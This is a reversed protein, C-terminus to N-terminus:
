CRRRPARRPGARRRPWRRLGCGEHRRGRGVAGSGSIAVRPTPPDRSPWPGAVPGCRASGSSRECRTSRATANRVRRPADDSTSCSSATARSSPSRSAFDPPAGGLAARGPDDARSLCAARDGEGFGRVGGRDDGAPRPAPDGGGRAGRARRAGGPFQRDPGGARDSSIRLSARAGRRFRGRVRGSGPRHWRARGGDGGGSPPRGGHRTDARRGDAGALLLRGRRCPPPSSHRRVPHHDHSRRARTSKLRAQTRSSGGDRRWFEGSVHSLRDSWAHHLLVEASRGVAQSSALHADSSRALRDPTGTAPLM